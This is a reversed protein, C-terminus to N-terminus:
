PQPQVLAACAPCADRVDPSFPTAARDLIRAGCLALAADLPVAHTDGTGILLPAPRLRRGVRMGRNPREVVESWGCLYEM